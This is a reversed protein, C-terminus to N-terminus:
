NWMKMIDDYYVLTLSSHKYQDHEHKLAPNHVHSLIAGPFYSKV